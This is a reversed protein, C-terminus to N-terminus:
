RGGERFYDPGKVSRIFAAVERLDDTIRMEPVVIARIFSHLNPFSERKKEKLADPRTFPLCPIVLLSVCDGPFDFGEWAAGTALLVIEDALKDYYM